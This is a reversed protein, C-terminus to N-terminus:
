RGATSTKPPKPPEASAKVPPRVPKPGEPEVSKAVPPTPPQAAKTKLKNVADAILSPLKSRDSADVFVSGDHDDLEVKVKNGIFEAMGSDEKGADFFVVRADPRNLLEAGGRETKKVSTSGKVNSTMEASHIKVKVARTAPASAKPVEIPPRPQEAEVSKAVPPKPPEASQTPTKPTAAAKRAAAVDIAPTDKMPMTLSVPKGGRYFVIATRSDRPPAKISDFPTVSNLWATTTAPAAVTLTGDPSVFYATNGEFGILEVPVTAKSVQRDFQEQMLPQPGLKARAHKRGAADRIRKGQSAETDILIRGDTIFRGPQASNGEWASVVSVRKEAIPRMGSSRSAVAQAESSAIDAKAAANQGIATDALEKAQKVAADIDSVEYANELRRRPESLLRNGGAIIGADQKYRAEHANIAERGKTKLTISRAWHLAGALRKGVNDATLPHQMFSDMADKIAAAVAEKNEEASLAAREKATSEHLAEAEPLAKELEQKIKFEASREKTRLGELASPDQRGPLKSWKEYEMQDLKFGSADRLIPNEGQTAADELAARYVQQRLPEKTSGLDHEQDRLKQWKKEAADRRKTGYGAADYETRAARTKDSVATEADDAAKYNAELTVREPTGLTPTIRARPTEPVEVSAANAEKTASPPKPPESSRASDLTPSTPPNAATTSDYIKYFDKADMGPNLQKDIVLQGWARYRDMGRAKYDSALDAANPPMARKELAARAERAALTASQEGQKVKMAEIEGQARAEALPRSAELERELDMVRDRYMGGEHTDARYEPSKRAAEIERYLRDFREASPAIAQVAPPKAGEVPLLAGESAISPPRMRDKAFEAFAEKSYTDPFKAALHEAVQDLSADSNQKEFARIAKLYKPDRAGTSLHPLLEKPAPALAEAVPPPRLDAPVLDPYEALVEPPVPKGERIANEIIWRHAFNKGYKDAADLIEQGSRRGILRDREAKYTEWTEAAVDDVGLPYDGKAEFERYGNPTMQWPEKAVPVVAQEAPAVARAPAVPAIADQVAPAKAAVKPAANPQGVKSPTEDPVWALVESKGNRVDALIRHHGEQIIWGGDPNARLEPPDGYGFTKYELVKDERITNGPDGAIEEINVRKLVQSNGGKDVRTTGEAPPPGKPPPAVPQVPAAAQSVIPAVQPKPPELTEVAASRQWEPKWKQPLGGPPVPPPPITTTTVDITPPEITKQGQEIAKRGQFSPPPKPPKGGKGIARSGLVGALSLALDMTGRGAEHKAGEVDGGGYKKGSEYASKGGSLGAVASGGQMVAKAIKPAKALVGAGTVMLLAGLPTGVMENARGVVGKVFQPTGAPLSGELDVMPTNVFNWAVPGMEAMALEAGEQTPLPQRAKPKASAQPSATPPKAAPAIAAVAAPPKPPESAPPKVASPSTYGVEKALAPFRTFWFDRKTAKDINIADLRSKFDDDGSSNEFAQWLQSKVERPVTLADIKKEWEFQPEAPM